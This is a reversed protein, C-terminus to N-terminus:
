GKGLIYVPCAGHELTSGVSLPWSAMGVGPWSAHLYRESSGRGPWLHFLMVAWHAGMPLSGQSVLLWVAVAWGTGSRIGVWTMPAYNIYVSGSCYLSILRGYVTGLRLKPM